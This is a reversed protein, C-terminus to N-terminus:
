YYRLPDSLVWGETKSSSVHTSGIGLTYFATNLAERDSASQCHWQLIRNISMDFTLILTDYHFLTMIDGNKQAKYRGTGSRLTRMGYAENRRASQLVDAVIDIHRAM